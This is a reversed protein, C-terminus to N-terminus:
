THSVDYNDVSHPRRQAAPVTIQTVYMRHSHARMYDTFQQRARIQRNFLNVMHEHATDPLNAVLREVDRTIDNKVRSQRVADRRCREIELASAALLRDM